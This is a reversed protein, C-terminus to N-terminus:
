AATTASRRVARSLLRRIPAPLLNGLQEVSEVFYGLVAPDGRWHELLRDPGANVLLRALALGVLYLDDVFGLVALFDPLLDAPTIIYLLVFALLGKDVASVRRDRVLRAVLLALNPLERIMSRVLRRAARGGIRYRIRRRLSV